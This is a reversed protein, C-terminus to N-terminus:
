EPTTPSVTKWITALREEHCDLSKNLAEHMEKQEAAFGESWVLHEDQSKIIDAQNHTMVAQNDVVSAVVAELRDLADKVHSGGNTTTLTKEIKDVTQSTAKANTNIVSLYRWGLGGIVLILLAMIQYWNEFALPDAAVEM